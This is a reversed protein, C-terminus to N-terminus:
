PLLYLKFQFLSQISTYVQTLKAYLVMVEKRIILLQARQREPEVSMDPARWLLM